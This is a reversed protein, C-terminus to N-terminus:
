RLDSEPYDCQMPVDRIEEGADVIGQRKAHCPTGYQDYVILEKNNRSVITELGTATVCL